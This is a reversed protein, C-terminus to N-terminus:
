AGFFTVHREILKSFFVGRNYFAMMFGWPMFCALARKNHYGPARSKKHLSVALGSNRSVLGWIQPELIDNMPTITLSVFSNLGPSCIPSTRDHPFELAGGEWTKYIWTRCVWTCQHNQNVVYIERLKYSHLVYPFGSYAYNMLLLTTM